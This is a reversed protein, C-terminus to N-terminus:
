KHRGGGGIKIKMFRSIIWLGILILIPRAFSATYVGFFKWFNSVSGMATKIILDLWNTVKTDTGTTTTTDAM